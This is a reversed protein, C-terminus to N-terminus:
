QPRRSERDLGFIQYIRDFFTRQHQEMMRARAAADLDQRAAVLEVRRRAMLESLHRAIEPRARLIDQFADRDLRYCEVDELAKVTVERPQGTLLSTEGFFDGAQLIAVRKELGDPTSLLVEASGECLIYLWHAVAGQRTMVEGQMFPAPRLREAVKRREQDNMSAFLEVRALNLSQLRQQVEREYHLKKREATEESVFTTYAPVSLPIGARQLAFYIRARVLSDTPDDMALDTLWYRVAYQCYSEKFEMLICNPPPQSAVREIPEALLAETVVRVVETPPVRFDVNFYIWRRQQTPQGSRRGLVSVQGRMLASNPIIVTDWNRTEIVITRWGVETVRGATQDIKIWDGVSLSEEIQLVLGGLINSLSDQLSFVILATMVASTAVLSSLTVGNHSLLWLGVGVYGLAVLLDRVIRPPSLHARRLIVDFVLISALKVMAFGGFLLAASTIIKSAIPLGATAAVSAALMLFVAGIYMALATRIYGRRDRALLALVAASLLFIASVKVLEEWQAIDQFHQWFEALGGIQRWFLHFAWTGMHM